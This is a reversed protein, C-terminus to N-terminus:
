LTKNNLIDILYDSGLILIIFAAVFTIIIHITSLGPPGQFKITLAFQIILIILIPIFAYGLQKSIKNVYTNGYYVVAVLITLIISIIRFVNGTEM